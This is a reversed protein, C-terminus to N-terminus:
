NEKLYTLIPDTTKIYLEKNAIYNDLLKKYTDKWEDYDMDQPFFVRYHGTGEWPKKPYLIWGKEICPDISMAGRYMYNLGNPSIVYLVRGLVIANERNDPTVLIFDAIMSKKMTWPGKAYNTKDKNAM